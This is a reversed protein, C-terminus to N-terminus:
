ARTYQHVWADIEDDSLEVPVWMKVWDDSMHTFQEIDSGHCWTGCWWVCVPTKGAQKMIEKM